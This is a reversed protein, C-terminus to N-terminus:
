LGFSRDYVYYYLTNHLALHMEMSVTKSVTQHCSPYAFCLSENSLVFHGLCFPNVQYSVQLVFFDFLGDFDTTEFLEFTKSKELPKSLGAM